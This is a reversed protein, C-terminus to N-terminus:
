RLLALPWSPLGLDGASDLVDDARIRETGVLAQTWLLRYGIDHETNREVRIDFDIEAAHAAELRSDKGVPLDGASQRATLVADWGFRRYLALNAHTNPERPPAELVFPVAAAEPEGVGWVLDVEYENDFEDSERIRYLPDVVLRLTHVGPAIDILSRLDDISSAAESGASLGNWRAREVLIGDLYLDVEVRETIYQDSENRVSFAVNPSRVVSPKGSLPDDPHSSAFIPEIKGIGAAPALNPLFDLAIAPPSVAIMMIQRTIINDTEVTEIIENLPDIVPSIELGGATPRVGSLLGEVDEAFVFTSTSFGNVSWLSAVMGDFRIEV